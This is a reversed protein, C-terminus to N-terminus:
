LFRAAATVTAEDTGASFMYSSGIGIESIRDGTKRNTRYKM